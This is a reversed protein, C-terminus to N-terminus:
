ESSLLGGRAIDTAEVLTSSDLSMSHGGSSVTMLGDIVMISAGDYGTMSGSKVDASSPAISSVIIASPTSPNSVSEALFCNLLSKSSM